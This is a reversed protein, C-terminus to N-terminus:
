GGSQLFAIYGLITSAIACAVSGYSFRFDDLLSNGKGSLQEQLKIYAACGFIVTSVVLVLMLPLLTFTHVYAVNDNTVNSNTSSQNNGLVLESISTASITSSFFFLEGDRFLSIWKWKRREEEKFMSIVVLNIILPLLALVVNIFFWQSLGNLIDM